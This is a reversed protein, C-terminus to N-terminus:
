GVITPKIIKQVEGLLEKPTFNTKILYKEAGFTQAQKKIHPDDLNSFVLVKINKTQENAKLTKLIDIGDGQPLLIDLLIIDPTEKKLIDFVENEDKALLTAFGNEAFKQSYMERLVKEDEVILITKM